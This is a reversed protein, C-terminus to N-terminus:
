YKQIQRSASRCSERLVEIATQNSSIKEVILASDRTTVTNSKVRAVDIYLDQVSRLLYTIAGVSVTVYLSLIIASAKFLINRAGRDKEESEQSAM